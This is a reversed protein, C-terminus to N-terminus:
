AQMQASEPRASPASRVRRGVTYGHEVGVASVVRELGGHVDGGVPAADGVLPAADERLARREGGEALEDDARLSLDLKQGGPVSYLSFRFTTNGGRATPASREVNKVVYPQNNHSAVFGRKIDSAKM